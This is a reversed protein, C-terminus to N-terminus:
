EFRLADMPDSRAARRAPVMMALGAVAALVLITAGMVVPDGPSVDFLLTSLGRGIVTALVLGIALGITVQGAGRRLVLRLIEGARAGMAMRIGFERTRQSVSFAIVGYMGATALLLTAIGCLAFISAAMGYFWSNDRVVQAMDAVAFVPVDPDISSVVDRFSAVAALPAGQTRVAIMATAPPAQSLPVYLAAPNRDPSSDLGGAWLAPVVGVVTRWPSDEASGIRIRRGVPDADGFLARALPANIIAVPQADADDAAEFTRGRIARSDWFEFFAPSASVYRTAPQDDYDEYPTNEVAVRTRGARTAPITTALTTATFGTTGALSTALRDYFRVRADAPTEAPLAVQATLVDRWPIGLRDPEASQASRALLGTAALLAVSLALELVVLGQMMRGARVGTSGRSEDRLAGQLDGGSSRLAPLLGALLAALATLALMFLLVTGSVRLDVWYPMRDGFVRRFVGLAAAAVGVGIVGGCIALLASEVLTQGALRGRSAGLAARVAMDRSRRIARVLLLNTVNACAVLLVLMVAGLVVYMTRVPTEGLYRHTISKIGVGIDRNADPWREALRSAIVGFEARASELSAGPALRGFVDTNTAAPESALAQELSYPLWLERDTPFAFGPGMVGVVTHPVGNISVTRGVISPDAGARNRWLADGLVVVPNAGARTDAEALARGLAPRTRLADFAKGSVRLANHRDTADGIRVTVDVFQAAELSEFSRQQERWVVLERASVGWGEGTAGAPRRELHLIRNADAVPLGRLVMGDILGFMAAPLGIGVGLVVAALAVLGFDRRLARGALRAEHLLDMLRVRGRRPVLGRVNRTRRSGGPGVDPRLREGVEAVLGNVGGSLGSRDRAILAVLVGADGHPVCVLRVGAVDIGFPQEVGGASASLADLRWAVERRTEPPLMRLTAVAERSLEVHM